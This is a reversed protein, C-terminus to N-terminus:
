YVTFFSIALLLERVPLTVSTLYFGDRSRYKQPWPSVWALARVKGEQEEAPELTVYVVRLWVCCKDWMVVQLQKL